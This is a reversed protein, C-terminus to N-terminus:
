EEDNSGPEEGNGTGAGAGGSDDSSASPRTELGAAPSDGDAGTQSFWLSASLCVGMWVLATWATIKTFVDGAKAGFASSGGPGGLAGALGGGKGRQVLILLVMFIAILTLAAKFLFGIMM